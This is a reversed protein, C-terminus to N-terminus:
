ARLGREHTQRFMAEADSRRFVRDFDFLGRKDWRPWELGAFLVAKVEVHGLADAAARALDGAVFLVAVGGVDAPTANALDFTTCPGVRAAV